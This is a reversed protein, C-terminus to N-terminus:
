RELQVQPQLLALEQPYSDAVHDFSGSAINSYTRGEKGLWILNIYVLGSRNDDRPNQNLFAVQL